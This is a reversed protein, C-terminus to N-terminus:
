ALACEKKGGQTSNLKASQNKNLYWVHEGFEAVKKNFNRGKWRAFATKGDMGVRTINIVDAAHKVLWPISPHDGPFTHM